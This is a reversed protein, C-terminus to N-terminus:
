FQPPSHALPVNSCGWFWRRYPKWQPVQSRFKKRFMVLILGAFMLSTLDCWSYTMHPNLLAPM